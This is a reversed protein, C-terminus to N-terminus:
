RGEASRQYVVVLNERVKQAILEALHDLSCAEGARMREEAEDLINHVHLFFPLGLVIQPLVAAFSSSEWANKPTTGTGGERPPPPHSGPWSPGGAEVGAGFLHGRM